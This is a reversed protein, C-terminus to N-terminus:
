SFLLLFRCHGSSFAVIIAPPAVSNTSSVAPNEWSRRLFPRRRGCFDSTFDNSRAVADLGKIESWDILVAECRYLRRHNTDGRRTHRLLALLAGASFPSGTQKATQPSSPFCGRRVLLFLYLFREISFFRKPQKNPWGLDNSKEFLRTSTHRKSVEAEPNL